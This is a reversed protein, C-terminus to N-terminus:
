IPSAFVVVNDLYSGATSDFPGGCSILVLRAPGTRTFLEPPLGDVKRYIRRGDVTYSRKDGTTTTVVIRDAIRLDTLRFLAGPGTAASDVHGDIVVSGSVAGPLASASWWGVRRPDEPVGLVGGSTVVPMVAAQVQLAPIALALPASPLGPLQAPLRKSISAAGSPAPQTRDVTRGPAPLDTRARPAATVGFGKPQPRERAIGSAAMVLLALGVGATLASVLRLAQRLIPIRRVPSV